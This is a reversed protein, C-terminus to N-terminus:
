EAAGFRAAVLTCLRLATDARVQDAVVSSLGAGFRRSSLGSAVPTAQRGSGFDVSENALTPGVVVVTTSQRTIALRM